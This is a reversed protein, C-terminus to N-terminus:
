APTAVEPINVVGVVTGTSTTLCQMVMAVCADQHLRAIPLSAWDDKRAKSALECVSSGLSVTATFGYSGATGTTAVQQFSTISRIPHGANGVIPFARGAASAPSAGGIAFGTINQASGDTDSVYAITGTTGTTGINTYIEMWWQVNKLDAAARTGKLSNCDIGVTQATTLTANLGGMHALRDVFMVKAGLVSLTIDAATIYRHRGIAPNTRTFLAGLTAKTPIAAAGPIAAQAPTGTARWMSTFGASLQSAISAKNIPVGSAPDATAAAIDDLFAM